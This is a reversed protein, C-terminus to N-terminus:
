DQGVVMYSIEYGGDNVKQLQATIQQKDNTFSTTYLGSAESNNEEGDGYSGSLAQCVDSYIEKAKDEDKENIFWKYYLVSGDENYYFSIKGNYGAFAYNEYNDASIDSKKNHEESSPTAKLLNKIDSETADQPVSVVKEPKVEKQAADQKSTCATLALLCLVPVALLKKKM